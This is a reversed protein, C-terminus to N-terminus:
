SKVGVTSIGLKDVVVIKKNLLVNFIFEDTISQRYTFEETEMLTYRIERGLFGSFRALAQAIM